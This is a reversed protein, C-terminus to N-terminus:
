MALVNIIKIVEESDLAVRGPYEYEIAYWTETFSAEHGPDLNEEPGIPGAECMQENNYWFSINNSAVEAYNRGPYVPFKKVFLRSDRTLYALWGEDLDMAIKKERPPAIIQLLGDKCVVNQDQDPKSHMTGMHDLTLYGKPYRSDTNIPAIAIGGGTCLTRSWHSYKKPTSSINRIVQTFKLKTLHQDLSFIRKIQIGTEQDETSLMEVTGSDMISASWKGLWLQPHPLTTLEPGIDCRGACPSNQSKPPHGNELLYGNEEQDIYLLNVNKHEFNLIRGGCSAELVIRTDQNTIEICDKYGNTDILQVKM